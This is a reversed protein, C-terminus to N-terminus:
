VKTVQAPVIDLGPARSMPDLDESAQLDVAMQGFLYTTSVVGPPVAGDLKAIGTFRRGSASAEVLDGESIRRAAADAPNLQVWEERQIRNVKGKVVQVERQSQLLVRGPAWWLPYEAPKPLAVARFQPAPPQAKGNPFGDRYLMPTSAGDPAACPWQLGRREKGTYLAQTPKPDKVAVAGAGQGPVLGTAAPILLDSRLVQVAAPELRPYSVGAYIPMARAMEEMVAAASPFDLGTVGMRRALQGLVWGEAKAEGRKPHMSPQLRQIRRELNTCTGHKEAFTSRPLVVHARQAAPGLFTDVVVLFELSGLAALGDGLRGNDLNASDGVLLMAKVGGALAQAVGLGPAAPLSGGWLAELERRAAADTVPRYGPLLHPVAGADWAGQENSGQRLPYLGGGAKGLNGTLLALDVLAAVCDRRSEQAVNDLAYVIAGAGAQGFLKAAEAMSQRSVHTAQAIQDLDLALVATRLTTTDGCREALWEKRELGQELLSKLIGGLVLLETGPAPRLWLHAYRTLEVERPDIVVLKANARAARKIPVGVVNHEETLNANFALICGAQELDWIPNTGAAYGLAEQLGAVLEPQLNSTQDVNNTGMVLRAFKQALYHEENTSNPSTLLAFSSAGGRYEALRRAVYDLAEDWSTAVLEDDHRVLPQRLRASQNLFELGFKGKFCAQGRNVPSNLEPIVRALRGQASIELNLQCGVPCHPCITPMVRQAKEWKHDREVLAGVPCVDICAGCFECGSELLSTGFSTGVLAMGSRDTFCIADDGRLEQCARVCRGCVICLNYDRDYFPDAVELPIGRYKYNLPSELEMGLYRVTDKFECRENKPCTICRDNVSVHRLCVDNPGCIDVRHCTLCGNPHEAVLMEMVSKRVQRVDAAESRIAMGDEVPLTCSAPLGPLRQMTGDRGKREAGVVCMRCAAYPKMGPHYCLYPVYIGADIAAELVMKGPRTKIEVGDISITIDDPM